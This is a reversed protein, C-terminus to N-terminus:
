GVNVRQGAQPANRRHVNNQVVIIKKRRKARRKFRRVQCVREDHVTVYRNVKKKYEASKNHREVVCM